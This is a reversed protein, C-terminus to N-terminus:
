SKEPRLEVRGRYRHPGVSKEAVVRRRETYCRGEGCESGAARDECGDSNVRRRELGLVKYRAIRLEPIM